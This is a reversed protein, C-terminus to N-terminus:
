YTKFHHIMKANMADIRGALSTKNKNIYQLIQNAVVKNLSRWIWM